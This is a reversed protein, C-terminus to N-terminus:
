RFLDEAESPVTELRRGREHLAEVAVERFVQGHARMFHCDIAGVEGARNAAIKVTVSQVAGTPAQRPWLM